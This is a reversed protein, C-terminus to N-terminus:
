QLGLVWRICTSGYPGARVTDLRVFYGTGMSTGCRSCSFDGDEVVVDSEPTVVSGGQPKITHEEREIVGEEEARDLIKRQLDPDDTISEIRDMAGALNIEDVALAELLEVGVRVPDDRDM